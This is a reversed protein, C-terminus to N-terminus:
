GRDEGSRVVRVFDISSPTHDSASLVKEGEYFGKLFKFKFQNKRREIGAWGSPLAIPLSKEEREAPACVTM